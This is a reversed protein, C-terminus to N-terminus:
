KKTFYVQKDGSVTMEGHAGPDSENLKETATLASYVKAELDETTGLKYVIRKNYIMYNNNVDVSYISTIEDLKLKDIISTLELIDKKQNEDSFGAIRGVVADTLTLKKIVVSGKPRKPVGTELVKMDKDLLTYTKDIGLVAYLKETETINVVITSPFKRKIEANYIYPLNEKLKQEAKDTDSLFLNEQKNIPLVATIQKSSYIENGVIKITDIKFLVTLSLVIMVAIVAIVLIVSYTIKRMLKKQKRKKSQERRKEDPTLVKDSNNNRVRNTVSDKKQSKSKKGSLQSKQEARYIKPPELGFSGLQSNLSNLDSNNEIRKPPRKNKQDKKKM